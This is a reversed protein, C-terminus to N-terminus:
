DDEYTTKFLTIEKTPESKQQQKIMEATISQRDQDKLSTSSKIHHHHVVPTPALNPVSVKLRKKTPSRKAQHYMQQQPSIKKPPSTKSRVSIVNAYIQNPSSRTARRGPSSPPSPSKPLPADDLWEDIPPSSRKTTSISQNGVSRVEGTRLSMSSGSQTTRAVFTGQSTITRISLDQKNKNNNDRSNIYKRILTCIVCSVTILLCILLTICLIIILAVEESFNHVKDPVDTSNIFSPKRTTSLVENPRPGTYPM